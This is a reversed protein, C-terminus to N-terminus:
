PVILPVLPRTIQIPHSAASALLSSAYVLYSTMGSVYDKDRPEADVAKETLEVIMM